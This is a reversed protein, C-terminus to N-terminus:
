FGIGGNSYTGTGIGPVGMFFIYWYTGVQAYEGCLQPNDMDEADIDRVGPPPTTSAAAAAEVGEAAVDIGEEVEELEMPEEAVAVAACRRLAVKPQRAAVRVAKGNV